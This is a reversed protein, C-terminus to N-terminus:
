RIQSSASGNMEKEYKEVAEKAQALGAGTLEKYVKIAELKCDEKLCKEIEFRLRAEENFNM